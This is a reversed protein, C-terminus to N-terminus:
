TLMGSADGALSSPLKLTKQCADPSGISRSSTPNTRSSFSNSLGIALLLLGAAASSAAIETWPVGGSFIPASSRSYIAAAVIAAVYLPIVRLLLFRVDFFPYIFKFALWLMAQPLVVLLSLLALRDLFELGGTLRLIRHLGLVILGFALAVAGSTTLSQRSSTLASSLFPLLAAQGLFVIALAGTLFQDARLGIMLTSFFLAFILAELHAPFVAHPQVTAMAQLYSISVVNLPQGLWFGLLTEPVFFLLFQATWYLPYASALGLMLLRFLRMKQGEASGLNQVQSASNAVALL